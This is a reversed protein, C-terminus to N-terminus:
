EFTANWFFQLRDTPRILQFPSMEGEVVHSNIMWKQETTDSPNEVLPLVTHM